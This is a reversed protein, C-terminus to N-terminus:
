EPRPGIGLGGKMVYRYDPQLITDVVALTNLDIICLPGVKWLSGPTVLIRRDGPLFCADECAPGPLGSLYDFRKLRRMNALDVVNIGVPLEGFSNGPDTCVGITGDASIALQGSAAFVRDWLLTEGTVINGVIFWFTRALFSTDQAIALVHQADPHLLARVVPCDGGTGINPGYDGSMEGTEVDAIRVRAGALLAVKTGSPAGGDPTLSDDYQRITTGDSARLVRRWHLVLEGHKLVSVPWGPGPSSWVPQHTRADIKLVNSPVGGPSQFENSVYLWRGDPSVATQKSAAPLPISDLRTLSDADYVYLQNVLSNVDSSDMWYSAGLYINYKVSKPKTAKDCGALVAFALLALAVGAVAGLVPGARAIAQVPNKKVTNEMSVGKGPATPHKMGRKLPIIASAKSNQLRACLGALM